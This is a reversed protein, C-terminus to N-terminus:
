IMELFLDLYKSYHALYNIVLIFKLRVFQM